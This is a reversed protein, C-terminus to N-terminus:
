DQRSIVSVVAMENHYRETHIKLDDKKLILFKNKKCNIMTRKSLLDPTKLVRECDLRTSTKLNHETSCKVDCLNCQHYFHLSLSCDHQTLTSSTTRVGPSSRCPTHPHFRLSGETSLRGDGLSLYIYYKIVCSLWCMQLSM